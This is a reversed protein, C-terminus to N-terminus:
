RAGDAGPGHLERERRDSSPPALRCISRVCLWQYLAFAEREGCDISALCCFSDFEFFDQRSVNLLKKYSDRDLSLCLTDHKDIAVVTASRPEDTDLSKEGVAKFEGLLADPVRGRTFENIFIGLTGRLSVFMRDGREGKRMLVDGQKFVHAEVKEAVSCLFEKEFVGASRFFEVKYSLYCALQECMKRSRLESPRM